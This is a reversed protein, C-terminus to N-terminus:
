LNNRRIYEERARKAEDPTSYVGIHIYKGDVKIRARYNNSPLKNVGAGFQKTTKYRGKNSNQVKMTVWRCNNPFYSGDNDIRDLTLGESYGNNVAWDYFRQFDNWEDCVTIGRGGYHDYANNMPNNCRSKMSSWVGKLRKYKMSQLITEM